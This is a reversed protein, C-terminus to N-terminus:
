SKIDVKQKSLAKKPDIDYEELQSVIDEFSKGKFPTYGAITIEYEKFEGDDDTIVKFGETLEPLKDGMDFTKRMVNQFEQKKQAEVEARRKEAKQKNDTETKTKETNGANTVNQAEQKLKEEKAVIKDYIAMLNNAIEHDNHWEVGYWTEESMANQVGAIYKELEKEEIGVALARQILATLMIPVNENQWNDDVDDFIRAFFGKNGDATHTGFKGEWARVIEVINTADLGQIIPDLVEHNTGWQEVAKKVKFAITSAELASLPEGLAVPRGTKSDVEIDGAKVTNAGSTGQKAESGAADVGANEEAGEEALRELEKQAEEANKEAQEKLNAQQINSISMIIQQALQQVQVKVQRVGSVHMNTNITSLVEQEKETIRELEEQLINKQEETLNGSQIAQGIASKAALFHKKISEIEATVGAANGMAAAQALGSMTPCTVYSNAVGTNNAFNNEIAGYM